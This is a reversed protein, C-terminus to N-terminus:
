GVRAVEAPVRDPDGRSLRGAGPERGRARLPPLLRQRHRQDGPRSGAPHRHRLRRPRFPDHRRDHLRGCGGRGSRLCLGPPGSRGPLAERLRERLVSAFALLVVAGLSLVVAAIIEKTENDNYFSVVKRASADGDPTSGGIAFFAVLVLVVSLAGTLPALDRKQM